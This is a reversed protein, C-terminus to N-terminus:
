LMSEKNLISVLSEIEKHINDFYYEKISRGMLTYESIHYWETEASCISRLYENLIKLNLKEGYFEEIDDATVYGFKMTFSFDDEFNLSHKKMGIVCAASKDSNYRYFVGSKGSRKYGEPILKEQIEILISEAIDKTTM